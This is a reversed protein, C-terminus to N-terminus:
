KRKKKGEINFIVPIGKIDLSQQLAKEFFRVVDKRFLAANNVFLKFRPPSSETQTIYYVKLRDGLMPVRNSKQITEVIKNLKPTEIRRHAKENLDLAITLLRHIRQKERASISIIPFDAARYFKFTIKERFEDFTRTDKEIADWKNVAIVLPKVARMVEDAIKKDTETLGAGADMLHIVVDCKKISEVTRTLSYYDVDEKVRSKKRIGATDIIRVTTGHFVFSEDVADRTTGPVDSVVSRTYGIFSNLLTSKGSNPRGVIAIKVEPVEGHIKKVPLHDTIKDLLLSINVRGLASIPLIDDFGLEYFSSLNQFDSPSDMKNVAAVVPVSLKRVIDTLEYDFSSPAPNELLLVIVSSRALFRRANELIERSLESSDSIDLGPTDSLTFSADKHTMGFSVIDRTLGPMADVIAKKQKILANFLTSKGVNQRGVITVVPAKKTM